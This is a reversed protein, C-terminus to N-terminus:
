VGRGSSLWSSYKLLAFSLAWSHGVYTFIFCCCSIYGYTGCYNELPVNSRPQELIIGMECRLALPSQTRSQSPGSSFVDNLGAEWKSQLSLLWPPVLIWFFMAQGLTPSSSNETYAKPHFCRQRPLYSKEHGVKQKRRLLSYQRYSKRQLRNLQKWNPSM